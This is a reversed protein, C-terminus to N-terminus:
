KEMEIIQKDIMTKYPIIIVMNIIGVYLFPILALVMNPGLGSKDELVMILAIVSFIFSVIAMSLVTKGLHDFFIKAKLLVNKEMTKRFPVSFASIFGKWGCFIGQFVLPSIIVVLVSPLDIFRSIFPMTLAMGSFVIELGLVITTLILGLVYQIIM